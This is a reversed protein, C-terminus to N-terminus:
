KVEVSFDYKYGRYNSDLELTYEGSSPLETSWDDPKEEMGVLYKGDPGIVAPMPGVEGKVTLKQGKDLKMKYQHSGTGLFEDSLEAGSKGTGFQVQEVKQGCRSATKSKAIWGAPEAIEFWGNREQKVSVFMGEEVTGVIAADTNPQARVNLPPNDDKVIAMLVKCREVERLTESSTTTAPQSSAEPRTPAISASPTAQNPAASEEGQEMVQPATTPSVVQPSPDTPQRMVAVTGGAVAGASLLGALVLASTKM